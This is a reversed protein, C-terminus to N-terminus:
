MKEKIGRKVLWWNVPYSTIFGCLMAIQMTFWFEPMGPDVWSHWVAEFVLFQALAIFGYMGVQWASLSLTDAKVAQILGDKVSLDRMPQIAFYQFAVGFLFAFIYDLIWVAFMKGAHSDPFLSKWGLWVTVAPVGLALFESCIDGLTCGSGCHLAGKGVSVPFPSSKQPPEEGQKRAEMVKKHSGMRGFRFYAWLVLVTGFLSCVPWVVNMIGMHQAHGSFLDGVIILACLGGLALMVISLITFWHPIM